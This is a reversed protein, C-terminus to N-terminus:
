RGEGRGGEPRCLFANNLTSVSFGVKTKGGSANAVPASAPASAAQGSTTSTSSNDSKSCGALAAAACLLVACTPKGLVDWGDFRASSWAM